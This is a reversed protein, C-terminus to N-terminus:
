SASNQFYKIAGAVSTYLSGARAWGLFGIQGKSDYVSDTYVSLPLYTVDRIVFRSLDGFLISKANAAMVPMEQVIHVPYGLLMPAVDSSLASDNGTVLRRGTSDVLKKIYAWTADNMVFGCKPSIRYAPDVSHVLDVLVQYAAADTPALKVTSGSVGVVGSAAATLLGQPQSTNTGTMFYNSQARNIRSLATTTVHNVINFASDQALEKTVTFIKSIFKYTAFPITGFATDLDTAQANEGLLEGVEGTADSTVYDYTRGEDTTIVTVAQRLGGFAKLAVSINPMLIKPVTYGGESGTGKTQANQIALENKLADFEQANLGAQGYALYKGYANIILEGNGQGAVTDLHKEVAANKVTKALLTEHNEIQKDIAAIANDIEDFKTQANEVTGYNELVNKAETVLTDRQTRLATIDM